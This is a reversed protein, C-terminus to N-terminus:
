QINSDNAIPMNGKAMGRQSATSAHRTGTQAYALLLIWGAVFRTSKMGIGEKISAVSNASETKCYGGV